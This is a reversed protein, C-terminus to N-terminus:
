QFNSIPFQFNKMMRNKVKIKIPMAAIALVAAMANAWVPGTGMGSTKPPGRSAIRTFGSNGSSCVSTEIRMSLKEVSRLREVTLQNSSPTRLAEPTPLVVKEKVVFPCPSSVVIRM